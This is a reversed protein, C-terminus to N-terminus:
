TWNKLCIKLSPDDQNPGYINTLCCEEGNIKTKSILFRGQQDKTEQLIELSTGKRVLIAVGMASTTGHSFSIKGGWESRWIQEQRVSSHTEQLLIIYYKKCNVYHFNERRKKSDGLGRVNM